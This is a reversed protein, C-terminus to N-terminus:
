RRRRVLRRVAGTGALGAVLFALAVAVIPGSGESEHAGLALDEDDRDRGPRDDPPGPPSPRGDPPGCPPDVPRGRGRGPCERDDEDDDDEDGDEDGVTMGLSAVPSPFRDRLARVYLTHTGDSLGEIEATYTGADPDVVAYLPMRFDPDDVSAQVVQTTPHFGALQPDPGLAPYAVQGSLTVSGEELEAGEGPTEVTVGFELGDDPQPAPTITVNSATDGEHGYAWARNGLHVFHFSLQEGAAVPRVTEFSLEFETWGGPSTPAAVPDSRGIERDTAKLVAVLETMGPEQSEVFATVDVTSGAPLPDALVDKAAYIGKPRYAAVVSTIREDFCTGVDGASDERDMYQENHTEACPGGEEFAADDPPTVDPEHVARRHLWYTIPETAAADQAVAGRAADFDDDRPDDNTLEGDGPFAAAESQDCGDRTGDGDRDYSGYQFDRAQCDSLFFADEESRDPLPAVGLLVEVAREAAAPGPAGYGEFVYHAQELDWTQPLPYFRGAQEGDFRPAASKLVAARLERRTLQGDDLFRSDPIPTGEAIVQGDRQGPHSHDGLAARVETLVTGFVGATYPTAASTGGFACQATDGVRCASPLDGDGLSSVHAPVGDSIIAGQSDERIAGVVINWDPGAVDSGYTLIPVDFFTNGVGNGAAFLTTQGREAALRTAQDAGFLAGVPAGGVYGWSNSSIDVWDFGAITTTGASLTDVAVVLCTPCYGYRNGTAVSASGTGHGNSDLIPHTSAGFGGADVAGVVKTGPIWYMRGPEIYRDDPDWLYADQDPFYGQGLTIPIAIADAPYGPIYESPHRTFNRTLELVEPDPYTAASFELHYPNVGSDAFGIVTVPTALRDLDEQTGVHVSTMERSEHGDASTAKFSVLRRGAPLAAAVEAGATEFVGDLDLDWATTVGQGGDVAGTLLQAEGTVFEYPGGADVRPRPDETVDRTVLLRATDPFPTWRLIEATWEGAAPESVTVRAPEGPPPNDGGSQNGDPDVRRLEYDSREVGFTLEATMVATDEPVTFTRRAFFAVAVLGPLNEIGDEDFLVELAPEYVVFVVTDSASAGAADTVTLTATYTGPELDDTAIVATPNDPAAVTGAETSWSHAYPATGGFSTGHLVVHDGVPVFASDGADAVLPADAVTLGSVLPPEEAPTGPAAVAGPAGALLATIATMAVLLRFSPVAFSTM